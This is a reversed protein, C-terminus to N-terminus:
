RTTPLLSYLGWGLLLLLFTSLLVMGQGRRDITPKPLWPGGGGTGLESAELPVVQDGEPQRGHHVADIHHRQEILAEVEGDHESLTRCVGCRYRYPWGM